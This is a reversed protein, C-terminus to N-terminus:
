TGKIESFVSKISFAFKGIVGGEQGAESNMYACWWIVYVPNNCVWTPSAEANFDYVVLRKVPIYRSYYRYNSKGMLMTGADTEYTGNAGVARGEIIFKRHALVCYADPNIPLNYFFPNYNNKFPVQRDETYSRFFVELDDLPNPTVGPILRIGAKSPSIVAVNMKIPYGLGNQFWFDVKVGHFNVRDTMRSDNYTTQSGTHIPIDSADWWLLKKDYLNTCNATWWRNKLQNTKSNMPQGMNTLQKRKFAMKKSVRKRRYTVRRRKYPRKRSPRRKTVRRM